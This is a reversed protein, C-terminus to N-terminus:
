ETNLTGSNRRAESSRNKKHMSAVSGFNSRWAVRIKRSRNGASDTRSTARHLPSPACDNQHRDRGSATRVHKILGPVLRKGFAIEELVCSGRPQRNGVRDGTPM